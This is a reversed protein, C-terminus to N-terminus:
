APVPTLSRLTIGARDPSGSKYATVEYHTNLAVPITYNGSGDSITRGEVPTSGVTLRGTEFAIVECNPLPAGSSDYTIGELKWLQTSQVFPNILPGPKHPYIAGLPTCICANAAPLTGLEASRLRSDYPTFDPHMPPYSREGAIFLSPVVVEEIMVSSMAPAGGVAISAGMAEFRMMEGQIVLDTPDAPVNIIVPM